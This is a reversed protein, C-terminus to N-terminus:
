NKLKNQFGKYLLDVNTRRTRLNIMKSNRFETIKDDFTLNTSLRLKSRLTGFYHHLPSWFFVAM